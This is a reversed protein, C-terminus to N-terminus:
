AKSGWARLTPDWAKSEIQGALAPDAFAIVEDLVEAFDEPLRDALGQDARWATWRGQARETFGVLLTELSTRSADRFRAVTDIALGLDAGDIPNARVLTLLDAFDRWRTNADGRQVATIIKESLVMVLPYGPVALAEDGLLRPLSLLTPAPQVPDGVNVDVHFTIRATALRAHLTVRTGAYLDEDRITSVRTADIDFSLGDDVPARAIAVVMDRVADAEGPLHLALLDVDRTPRRAEFAALLMGGKLVLRDRLTSRSLRALFGELAYLQFLEATPRLTDRALRRLALYRAGAVTDNTPRDTM